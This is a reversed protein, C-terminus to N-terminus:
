NQHTPLSMEFLSKPTKDLGVDFKLSAEIKSSAIHIRMKVEWDHDLKVLLTNKSDEKFEVSKIKTPLTLQPVVQKPKVNGASQNLDGSLNYAKIKVENKLKIIKYFDKRGVLYRILRKPVGEETSLRLLEKRFADLVPKYVLSHYDGLQSWTALRDSKKRRDALDDFIPTISDFYEQSCELGLWTKGFDAKRSLRSHKVADHNNKASVGVDWQQLLRYAVVDRVDGKEGAEDSAIGIQLLDMDGNEASLRPELDLILKVATLSSVRFEGQEDADYSDYHGRAQKVADTDLVQVRVVRELKEKLDLLLAYEFAKGSRAQKSVALM